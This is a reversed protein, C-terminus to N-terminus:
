SRNASLRLLGGDYPHRGFGAEDKRIRSRTRGGIKM